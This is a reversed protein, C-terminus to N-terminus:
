DWQLLVRTAYDALLRGKLTLRWAKDAIPELIGESALKAISHDLRHLQPRIKEQLELTLGDRIRINLMVQEILKEAASLTEGQERPDLTVKQRYALPHKVNWWRREGIHSHAGPGFGWWQYNHWYALNHKSAFRWKEVPESLETPSVKAFNSIEYWYYGAGELVRAALEYKEGQQDPDIDPLQGTHIQRALKTGEEVILSYASIHSPELDIAANLTTRWDLLTEGPTGYILDVSTQLGHEQAAAIARAVFDQQHTRDLIRLVHSVASQMGVSLRTFGIKALNAIDAPTVTDPNAELTVEANTSRGFKETLARIVRELQIATLLSPTGGGFFISQLPSLDYNLAQLEKAAFDIEQLLTQEFSAPDAGPGFHATYTNFDCYGCRKVCFPVHIYASFPLKPPESQTLHNQIM